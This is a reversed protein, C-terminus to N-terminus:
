NEDKLWKSRRKREDDSINMKYGTKRIRTKNSVITHEAHSIIELNDINNNLKNGDKHHVDEHMLLKRKLYCEMIYRHQKVMRRKGDIYIMGEIYGKQNIFWTPNKNKLHENNKGNNKYMCPRSCYKRSNRDSFFIKKCEPCIKEIM